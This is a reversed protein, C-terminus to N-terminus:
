GQDHVGDVLKSCLFHLLLVQGLQGPALQNAAEAEGFGVVAGVRSGHLGLGPSFTVVVDEIAGLVPDGVGGNGVDEHNPCLVVRAVDPSEDELLAHGSQRGRLNFALEGQPSGVSAHNEHFVHLHGSFVHEWGHLSQRPGEGAQVVSAVADGPSGHSSCLEAHLLSPLVDQLALLKPCGEGAVLQHLQLQCVHVGLDGEAQLSCEPHPPQNIGVLVHGLHDAHDLAVVAALGQLHGPLGPVHQSPVANRVLVVDDPVHHVQLRHVGVLPCMINMGQDQAPGDCSDGRENRAVGGPVLHGLWTDTGDRGLQSSPAPIGSLKTRPPISAGPAFIKFKATHQRISVEFHTLFVAHSM